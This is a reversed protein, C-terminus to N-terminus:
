DFLKAMKDAARQESLKKLAGKSQAFCFVIASVFGISTILFGFITAIMTM